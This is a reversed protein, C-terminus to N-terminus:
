EISIPSGDRLNQVGSVVVRDGPGIGDKIAAKNGQLSSIQLPRQQAVTGNAGTAVVYAFARGAVFSLAETPIMIGQRQSLLLSTTVSQDPRYNGAANDFLAKVLVSQNQQDVIPDIHFVSCTAIVKGGDDLLELPMGNKVGTAMEKPVLVNVELPRVQSVTTLKTHSDIYDGLKVPIDAMVGACPATIRYYSLQEEQEKTAYRASEVSRSARIIVDKQAIINEDIEKLKATAVKFARDYADVTSESVVGRQELSYNREYETKDYDVSAKQAERSAKLSELKAVEKQYDAKATAIESDKTSVAAKQKLSDIEILLQGARVNQGPAVLIQSITGDVKPYLSVAKRSDLRGVLTASETVQEPSISEVKVKVPAAVPAETKKEECGCLFLALCSALLIQRRIIKM